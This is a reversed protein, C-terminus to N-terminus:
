MHLTLETQGTGAKIYIYFVQQRGPTVLEIAKRHQESMDESTIAPSPPDAM